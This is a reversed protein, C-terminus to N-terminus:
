CMTVTSDSRHSHTSKEFVPAILKQILITKKNMSIIATIELISLLKNALYKVINIGNQMLPIWLNMGNSM